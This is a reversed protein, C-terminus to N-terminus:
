LISILKKTDRLIKCVLAWNIYDLNATRYFKFFNVDFFNPQEININTIM